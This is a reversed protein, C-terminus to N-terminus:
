KTEFGPRDGTVYVLINSERMSSLESYLQKRQQYM